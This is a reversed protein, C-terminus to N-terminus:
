LAITDYVAVHACRWRSMVQFQHHILVRMQMEYQSVSRALFALM